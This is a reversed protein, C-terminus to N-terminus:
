RRRVGAWYALYYGLVMGGAAMSGALGAAGFWAAGHIGANWTHVGRWMGFLLRGVVVLTLGLVLWRNPTYHLAGPSPEWRTLWLGIVGLVCGAALGAASYRFAGPVWISTFSAGALFFIASLALGAVNVTALWGRARQRATGM